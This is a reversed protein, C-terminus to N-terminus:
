KFVGSQTRDNKSLLTNNPERPTEFGQCLTDGTHNEASVACDKMSTCVAGHCNCTYTDCEGCHFEVTRLGSAIWLVGNLCAKIFIVGVTFTQAKFILLRSFCFSCM